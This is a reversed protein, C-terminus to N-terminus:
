LAFKLVHKEQNKKEELIHNQHHIHNTEFCRTTLIKLQENIDQLMKRGITTPFASKYCEMWNRQDPFHQNETKKLKVVM